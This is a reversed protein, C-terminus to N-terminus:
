AIRCYFKDYSCKASINAVDFPILVTFKAVNGLRRTPPSQKEHGIEGDRCGSV